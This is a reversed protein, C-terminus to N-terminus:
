DWPDTEPRLASEIRELENAFSEADDGLSPLGAFVRNLEAVKVWRGVPSIRAVVKKGRELEVTIGDASVRDVLEGFRRGAESVSIREM